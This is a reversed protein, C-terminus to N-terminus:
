AALQVTLDKPSHVTMLSRQTKGWSRVKGKYVTETVCMSSAAENFCKWRLRFLGSPRLANTMDLELLLRDRDDLESTGEEVSGVDLDDQGPLFDVSM